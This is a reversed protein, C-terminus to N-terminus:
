GLSVSGSSSGHLSPMLSIQPLAGAIYTFTGASTILSTTLLCWPSRESLTLRDSSTAVPVPVVATATVVVVTSAFVLSVSSSLSSFPHLHAAVATDGVMVSSDLTVLSSLSEGHEIVCM